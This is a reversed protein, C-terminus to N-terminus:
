SPDLCELLQKLDKPVSSLCMKIGKKHGNWKLIGCEKLIVVLQSASQAKTINTTMSYIIQGLGSVEIGKALKALNNALPFYETGFDKELEKLLALLEELPFVDRIGTDTRDIILVSRDDIHWTFARAKGGLTNGNRKGGPIPPEISHNSISKIDVNDSHVESSITPNLMVSFGRRNIEAILSELPFGDLLIFM